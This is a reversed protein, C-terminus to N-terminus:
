LLLLGVDLPKAEVAHGVVEQRQEVISAEEPQRLAVAPRMEIQVLDVAGEYPTEGLAREGHAPHYRDVRFGAPDVQHRLRLRIAGIVGMEISDVEIAAAPTPQRLAGALMLDLKSRSVGIKDICM